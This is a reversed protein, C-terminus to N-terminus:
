SKKFLKFKREFSIYGKRKKFLKQFFKVLKFLGVATFSYIAFNM